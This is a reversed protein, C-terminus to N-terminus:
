SVPIFFAACELAAIAKKVDGNQATNNTYLPAKNHVLVDSLIELPNM